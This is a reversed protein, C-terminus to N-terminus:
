ALRGSFLLACTIIMPLPMLLAEFGYVRWLNVEKSKEFAKDVSYETSNNKADIAGTKEIEVQMCKRVRGTTEEVTEGDECPIVDGIRVVVKSGPIPLLYNSPWASNGGIMVLPIFEVKGVNHAIHFMGKKFPLLHEPGCSASRRRSGEPFGALVYNEKLRDEAIALNRKAAEVDGSRAVPVSGAAVQLWGIFPMSLLEKKVICVVGGLAQHVLWVGTTVVMFDLTSSHTMLLM